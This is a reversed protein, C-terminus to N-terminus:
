SYCAGKAACYAVTNGAAIANVSAINIIKGKGQKVMLNAAWKALDFVATQNLEIVTDWDEIPFELVSHRIQIGANNVLIDLVGGEQEEIQAKLATRSDRNILDCVIGRAELGADRLEQARTDTDPHVDVLIVKAGAEALGKAMGWGLGQYAGTVVANKGHLDFPNKKM